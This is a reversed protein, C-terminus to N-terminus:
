FIGSFFVSDDLVATKRGRRAGYKGKKRPVDKGGKRGTGATAAMVAAAKAKDGTPTRAAGYDM